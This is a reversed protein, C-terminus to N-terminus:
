ISYSKFFAFEMKDFFAFWCTTKQTFAVSTVEGSRRQGPEALRCASRTNVLVGLSRERQRESPHHRDQDITDAM